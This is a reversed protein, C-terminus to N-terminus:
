QIPTYRINSAGHEMFTESPATMNEGRSPSWADVEETAIMAEQTHLRDSPIGKATTIIIARLRREVLTQM